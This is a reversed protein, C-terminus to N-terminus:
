GRDDRTYGTLPLQCTFQTGGPVPQIAISIGAQAATDQVRSLRSAPKGALAGPSLGAAEIAFRYSRTDATIDVSTPTAHEGILGLVQRM